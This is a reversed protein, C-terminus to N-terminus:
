HQEQDTQTEKRGRKEEKEEILTHIELFFEQDWVVKNLLSHTLLMKEREQTVCRRERKREREGPLIKIGTRRTMYYGETRKRNQFEKEETSLKM